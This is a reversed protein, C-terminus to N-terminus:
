PPPLIRAKSCPPGHYMKVGDIRMAERPQFGTYLSQATNDSCSHSRLPPMCRQACRVAWLVCRAEPDDLPGEGEEARPEEEENKRYIGCLRPSNTRAEADERRGCAM